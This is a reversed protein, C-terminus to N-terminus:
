EGESANTVLRSYREVLANPKKDTMFPEWIYGLVGAGGFGWTRILGFREPTIGGLAYVQRTIIEARRGTALEEASFAAGYGSKSISDFIPSLFVYNCLTLSVKVEELSHCSRSLRKGTLKRITNVQWEVKPIHFGGVGLDRIADLRGHVTIRGHFKTNIKEVFQRLAETEATPKRLHLVDLGAEFLAEIAEAEGEFFEPWTIVAINM